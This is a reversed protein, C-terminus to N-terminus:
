SIAAIPKTSIQVTLDLDRWASEVANREPAARVFNGGLGIFAKVAGAIVAECTEVHGPRKAPPEFSFMEALRDLPVLEPKESIGVSRQGQVNSHRPGPLNGRGPPRPQWATVAPQRAHWARHGMCM